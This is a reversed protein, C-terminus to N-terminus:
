SVTFGLDPHPLRDLYEYPVRGENERHSFATKVASHAASQRRSGRSRDSCPGSIRNENSPCCASKALVVIAAVLAVRFRTACLPESM